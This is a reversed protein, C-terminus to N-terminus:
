KHYIGRATGPPNKAESASFISWGYYQAAGFLALILIGSILYSRYLM